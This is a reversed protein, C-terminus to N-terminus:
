AAGGPTTPALEDLAGHVEGLVAAVQDLADLARVLYAAYLDVDGARLARRGAASADEATRALEDAARACMAIREAPGQDAPVGAPTPRPTPRPTAVDPRAPALAPPTTALAPTRAGPRAPMVHLTGM